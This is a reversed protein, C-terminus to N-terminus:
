SIRWGWNWGWGILLDGFRQMDAGLRINTTAMNPISPEGQFTIAGTKTHAQYAARLGDALSRMERRNALVAMATETWDLEVDRITQKCDSQARWALTPM